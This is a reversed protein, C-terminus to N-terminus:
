GCTSRVTSTRSYKPFYRSVVRAASENFIALLQTPADVTWIALATAHRSLQVFDIELSATNAQVMDSIKEVYVKKNPDTGVDVYRCISYTRACGVISKTGCMRDCTVNMGLQCAVAQQFQLACIILVSEAAAGWM